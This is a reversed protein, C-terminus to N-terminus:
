CSKKDTQLRLYIVYYYYHLYSQVFVVNNDKEIKNTNQKVMTDRLSKVDHSLIYQNTITIM